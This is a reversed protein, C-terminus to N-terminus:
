CGTVCGWPLTMPDERLRGQWRIAESTDLQNSAILRAVQDTPMDAREIQMALAGVAIWAVLAFAFAAINLKRWLRGAAVVISVVAV